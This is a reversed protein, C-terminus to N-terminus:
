DDTLQFRLAMEIDALADRFIALRQEWRDAELIRQGDFPNLPALVLPQWGAIQPDEVPSLDALVDSAPAASTAQGTHQIEARTRVQEQLQLIRALTPMIDDIEAREDETIPDEPLWNVEARPYPADTLWREIRFRRTGVTVLLWRGDDLEEAQVIRALTGTTARCEDDPTEASRTILTIGFANPEGVVDRMLARYRPEFVHLPLVMHPLLVTPLPFMPLEPVNVEPQDIQYWPRM